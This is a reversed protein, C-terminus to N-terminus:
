AAVPYRRLRWAAFAGAAITLFLLTALGSASRAAVASSREEEFRFRPFRDVDQPALARNRLVYRFFYTRWERHFGDALGLFHKYRHESTAAIDFLAAQAVVAPSLYRYCDVL